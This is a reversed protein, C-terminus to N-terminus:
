PMILCLVGGRKIIVCTSSQKTTFWSMWMHMAYSTRAPWFCGTLPLLKEQLLIEPLRKALRTTQYMKRRQTYFPDCGVPLQHMQVMSVYVHREDQWPLPKDWTQLFLWHYIEKHLVGKLDCHANAERSQLM